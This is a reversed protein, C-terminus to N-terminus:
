DVMKTCIIVPITINGGNDKVAQKAYIKVIGNGTDCFPAFNGSVADAPAFRVDASYDTTVDTCSVDYRIAYGDYTTDAVGTTAAFTVNTFRLLSSKPVAANAVALATSGRDYANKVALPTAATDESTSSTSSNLKTAGYYTTSAVSGDVMVWNSTNYVFRVVAGQRWQNALPVTTSYAKIEVAGTNNVNLTPRSATNANLFSVDVAVGSMLKFNDDSVTVVKNAENAASLCGGYFHLEKALPKAGLVADDVYKKNAAELDATPAANLVLSGTMTGGTKPLAVEAIAKASDAVEKVVADADDVYKKNTASNDTLPASLGSISDPEIHLTNGSQGDVMIIKTPEIALEQGKETDMVQIGVSKGSATTNAYIGVFAPTEDTTLVGVQATMDGSADKESFIRAGVTSENGAVVGFETQGENSNLIGGTLPLYGSVSNAVYEQNVLVKGTTSQTPTPTTPSGTFSPSQLPAKQNLLGMIKDKFRSLKSISVFEM